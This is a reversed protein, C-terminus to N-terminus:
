SFRGAEVFDRRSRRRRSSVFRDRFSASTLFCPNVKGIAQFFGNPIEFVVAQPLGFDCQVWVM